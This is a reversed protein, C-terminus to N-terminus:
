SRRRWRRRWRWRGTMTACPPRPIAVPPTPWRGTTTSRPLSRRWRRLWPQRTWRSVPSILLCAFLFNVGLRQGRPEYGSVAPAVFLGTALWATAIWFVGFQTHVSRSVTYPLLQALPLGFFARGEVAYHATITGMAIQVLILAIVVFFYKATARMSATPTFQALPDHNPPAPTPGPRPANLLREPLTRSVRTGSGVSAVLYGESTLQDYASAVTNREVGLSGALGRTSPVREGPRMRGELIARRIQDRLQRHLPERAGVDLVLSDLDFRLARGNKPM